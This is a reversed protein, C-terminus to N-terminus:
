RGGTVTTGSVAFSGSATSSRGVATTQQGILVEAVRYGVMSGPGVSWTGTIGSAGQASGSSSGAGTSTSPSAPLSRAAPPPGEILHIYVFPGGVALVVVVAV